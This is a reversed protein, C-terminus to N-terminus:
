SDLFQHRHITLRGSGASAIYAEVAIALLGAILLGWVVFFIPTYRALPALELAATAKAAAAKTEAIELPGADAPLKAPDPIEIEARKADIARKVPLDTLTQLALVGVASLGCLAVMARRGSGVPMLLGLLAGSGCAVLLGILMDSPVPKTAPDSSGAIRLLEKLEAGVTFEGTLAQWGTQTLVVVRGDQQPYGLEAAVKEARPDAACSVELWPLAFLGLGVLLATPAPIRWFQSPEAMTSEEICISPTRSV